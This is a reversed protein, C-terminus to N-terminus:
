KGPLRLMQEMHSNLREIKALSVNKHRAVLLYLSDILCLQTIQSSLAAAKVQSESFSTCFFIRSVEHLPSKRYNSIGLTMAGNDRAIQLAQVTVTSRGSHSIGVAVEGNKKMRFSQGLIQYSDSYAEAEIDLHSFRLAADHAVHGSSGIGFFVLRTARSVIEAAHILDKRCLIKLTDNLSNVNGSFVKEIVKEDSDSSSIAQYIESFADSAALSDKGLSTKFDKYSGYGITRAFRSITAVSVGACQALEHVSLFPVEEPHRTIYDALQRQTGPFSKYLSKIEILVNAM